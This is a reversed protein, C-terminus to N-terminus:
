WAYKLLSWVLTFAEVASAVVILVMIAAAPATIATLVTLIAKVVLRAGKAKTLHKRLVFLGIPGAWTVFIVAVVGFSLLPPPSVPSMDM